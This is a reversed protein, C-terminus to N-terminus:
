PCGSGPYACDISASVQGIQARMPGVAHEQVQGWGVLAAVLCLAIGYGKM